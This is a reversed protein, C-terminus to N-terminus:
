PISIMTSTYYTLKNFANLLKDLLTEGENDLPIGWIGSIFSVLIVAILTYEVLVQGKKLNKKDKVKVIDKKLSTISM